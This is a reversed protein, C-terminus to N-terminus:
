STLDSFSRSRGIDNRKDYWTTTSNCLWRKTALLTWSVGFTWVQELIASGFCGGFDASLVPQAASEDAM